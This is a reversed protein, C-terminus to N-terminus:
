ITIAFALAVAMLVIIMIVFIMCIVDRSNIDSENQVFSVTTSIENKEVGPQISNKVERIMGAQITMLGLTYQERELDPM